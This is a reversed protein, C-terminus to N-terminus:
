ICKILSRCNEVIINIEKKSANNIHIGGLVVAKTNYKKSAEEAIPKLVIYDYHGEFRIVNSEKGPESIIVGGIHSKEGGGLIYIRDKGVEM